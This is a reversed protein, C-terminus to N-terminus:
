CLQWLLLLRVRLPVFILSKRNRAKAIGILTKRKKQQNEQKRVATNDLHM